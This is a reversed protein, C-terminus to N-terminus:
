NKKLKQNLKYKFEDEKNKFVYKGCHTCIIKDSNIFNISHGCECKRNLNKKIFNDLKKQEEFTM